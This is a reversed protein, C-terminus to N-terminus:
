AGLLSAFPMDGTVAWRIGLSIGWLVLVVGTMAAVAAVKHREWLAAAEDGFLAVLGSFTFYRIGRGLGVALTFLGVPYAAAGAVVLAAQLPIPSVGVFVIAWFGYEEFLRRFEELAGAGVWDELGSSGDNAWWWALGYVILAGVLNGLTVALGHLFVRKRDAMMIPLLVVEVPIPVFSAELISAIFLGLSPWHSEKM